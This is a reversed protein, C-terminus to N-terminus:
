FLAEWLTTRLGATDIGDPFTNSTCMERRAQAGQILFQPNPTQCEREIHGGPPESTPEHQSVLAM